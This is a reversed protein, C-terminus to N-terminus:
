AFDDGESPSPESNLDPAEQDAKPWIIRFTSGEGLRSELQIQGQSSQVAHKVISLGLGSGGLANPEKSRSRDVRYFREFIRDQDALAIGVGTDSVTLCSAEKDSNTTLCVKGEEKNYHIANELLNDVIERISEPDAYLIAPDLQGELTIKKQRALAEHRRLSEQCLEALDVLQPSQVEDYRTIQLIDHLLRQMVLSEHYIHDIFAPVDAPDCIGEKLLEAYGLIATLPTKLEHAVNGAFERRLRERSVKESADTLLLIVGIPGEGKAQDRVPSALIELSLFHAEVLYVGHVGKMAEECAQLIQPHQTLDALSKAVLTDPDSHALQAEEGRPRIRDLFGQAAQNCTLLKLDGDLIMLGESMNNTIMQVTQREKDTKKLEEQLGQKLKQIRTVLPRVEEYIQLYNLDQNEIHDLDLTLLPVRIGAILIPSVFSTILLVLVLTICISGANGQLYAGYSERVDSIRIVDGNALLHAYYVMNTQLTASHRIAHGVGNKQAEQVEPRDEHNDMTTPDQSTDLAVTGDSKVLTLREKSLPINALLEEGGKELLSAMLQAEYALKADLVANNRQYMFNISLFTALLTALVAVFFIAAFIRKGM